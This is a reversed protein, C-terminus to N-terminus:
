PSPAGQKCGRKTVKLTLPDLAERHEAAPPPMLPLDPFREQVLHRGTKLLALAGAPLPLLIVLGKCAHTGWVGWRESCEVGTCRSSKRVRHGKGTAFTLTDADLAAVDSGAWALSAALCGIQQMQLLPQVCLMHDNACLAIPQQQQVRGRLLHPLAEEWALDRQM